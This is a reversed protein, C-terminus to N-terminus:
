REYLQFYFRVKDSAAEYFQLEREAKAWPNGGPIKDGRRTQNTNVYGLLRDIGTLTSLAAYGRKDKPPSGPTGVKKSDYRVKIMGYKFGQFAQPNNQVDARLDALSRYVRSSVLGHTNSQTNITRTKGSRPIAPPKPQGITGRVARQQNQVQRVSLADGSLINYGHRETSTKGKSTTWTQEGKYVWVWGPPLHEIQRNGAM